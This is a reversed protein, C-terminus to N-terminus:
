CPSLNEQQWHSQSPLVCPQEPWVWLSFEIQWDVRVLKWCGRTWSGVEIHGTRWEEKHLVKFCQFWSLLCAFVPTCWSLGELAPRLAKLERRISPERKREGERAGGKGRSKSFPPWTLLVLGVEEQLLCLMGTLQLCKDPFHYQVSSQM